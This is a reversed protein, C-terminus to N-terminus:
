EGGHAAPDEEIGDHIAAHALARAHGGRRAAQRRGFVDALWPHQDLLSQPVQQVSMHRNTPRPPGPPPHPFSALFVDFDTPTTNSVM